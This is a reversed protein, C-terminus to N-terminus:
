ATNRHTNEGLNEKRNKRIKKEDKERDKRDRKSDVVAVWTPHDLCVVNCETKGNAVIGSEHVSNIYLRM